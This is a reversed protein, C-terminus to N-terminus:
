FASSEESLDPKSWLNDMLKNNQGNLAIQTYIADVKEDSLDDDEAASLMKRNYKYNHISEIVIKSATINDKNYQKWMREDPIIWIVKVTDTSPYYKFLMSNTEVTQPKCLRPQWILRKTVGDDATRAHAYIYFPHGGFEEPRNKICDQCGQSIYDAQKNFQLLRDHTELRNIKM